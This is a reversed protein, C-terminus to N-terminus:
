FPEFVQSVKPGDSLFDTALVLNFVAPAWPEPYSEEPAGLARMPGPINRHHWCVLIAKGEFEPESLLAVALASYDEDAYSTHLAIGLADALPQVTQVPRESHNSPAAVFIFDPPGFTEPYWAALAKARARGAASLNPDGPDVPKEAHRMVLTRVPAM